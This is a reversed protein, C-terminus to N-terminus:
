RSCLLHNPMRARRAVGGLHPAHGAKGGLAPKAVSLYSGLKQVSCDQDLRNFFQTPPLGSSDFSRKNKHRGERIEDGDESLAAASWSV